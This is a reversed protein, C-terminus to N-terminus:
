DELSRLWKIDGFARNERSESTIKATTCCLLISAACRWTMTVGPHDHYDHARIKLYQETSTDGTFPAGWATFYIWWRVSETLLQAGREASSLAARKTAFRPNQM